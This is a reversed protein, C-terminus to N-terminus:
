PKKPSYITSLLSHCSVAPSLPLSPYAVYPGLQYDESDAANVAANVVLGFIAENGTTTETINQLYILSIMFKKNKTIGSPSM